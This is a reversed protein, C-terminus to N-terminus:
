KSGKYSRYDKNPTGYLVVKVVTYENGHKDTKTSKGVEKWNSEWLVVPTKCQNGKMAGTGM